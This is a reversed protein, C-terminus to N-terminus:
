TRAKENPRPPTKNERHCCPCGGMSTVRSAKSPQIASSNCAMSCHMSESKRLEPILRLCTSRTNRVPPLESTGATRRIKLPRKPSSRVRVPFSNIETARPNARRASSANTSHTLFSVDLATTDWELWFRAQIPCGARLNITLASVKLLLSQPFSLAASSDVAGTPSVSLVKSDWDCFRFQPVLKFKKMGLSASPGATREVVVRIGPHGM